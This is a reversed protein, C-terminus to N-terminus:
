RVFDISEMLECVAHFVARSREDNPLLGRRGLRDPHWRGKEKKLIDTLAKTQAATASSKDYGMEVRGNGPETYKPILDLANLYFAQVNAQMVTDQSWTSPHATVDPAWLTDRALLARPHLGRAPYPIKPDSPSLNNWRENYIGFLKKAEEPQLLSSPPRSPSPATFTTARIPQQRQSSQGSDTFTPPSRQSQQSSAVGIPIGFLDNLDREVFGPTSSVGSHWAPITTGFIGFPTYITNFMTQAFPNMNHLNELESFVPYTASSNQPFAGFGPSGGFERYQSQASEGPLLDFRASSRRASRPRSSRAARPMRAQELDQKAQQLSQEDEEVDNLLDQLHQFNVRRQGSAHELRKRSRAVEDEHYQVAGELDALPARNMPARRRASTQQSRRSGSGDKYEDGYEDMDVAEQSKGRYSSRRSARPTRAPSSDRSRRSPRRRTRSDALTEKIRSLVSRPHQVNGDDAEGYALDAESDTDSYGDFRVARESYTRTSGPEKASPAHRIDSIAGLLHVATGLLGMGVSSFVPPHRRTNRQENM